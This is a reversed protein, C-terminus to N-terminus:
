DACRHTDNDLTDLDLIEGCTRCTDYPEISKIWEYPIARDLHRVWCLQQEDDFIDVILTHNQQYDLMWGADEDNLMSLLVDNLRIECGRHLNPIELMENTEPCLWIKTQKM